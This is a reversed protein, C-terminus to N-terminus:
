VALQGITKWRPIYLHLAESAPPLGALDLRYWDTVVRGTRSPGLIDRPATYPLVIEQWGGAPLADDAVHPAPPTFDNGAVSLLQARVLHAATDGSGWACGAASCALVLLM